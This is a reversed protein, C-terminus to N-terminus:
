IGNFVMLYWQIGNFGNFVMAAYECLGCPYRVGADSSMKHIKLHEYTTVTYECLERPNIVVKHSIEKQRRM